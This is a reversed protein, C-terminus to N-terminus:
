ADIDMPDMVCKNLVTKKLRLSEVGWVNIGEVHAAEGEEGKGKGVCRRGFTASCSAGVGLGGLGRRLSPSPGVVVGAATTTITTTSSPTM